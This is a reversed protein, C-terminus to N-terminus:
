ASIAMAEAAEPSLGMEFPMKLGMLLLSESVLHSFLAATAEKHRSNDLFVGLGGSHPSKFSCSCDCNHEFIMGSRQFVTSDIHMKLGYVKGVAHLVTDVIYYPLPLHDKEALISQDKTPDPRTGLYAYTEWVISSIRGDFQVSLEELADLVQKKQEFYLDGPKPEFKSRDFKHAYGLGLYKLFEAAVAQLGLREAQLWFGKARLLLDEDLGLTEIEVPLSVETNLDVPRIAMAFRNQM